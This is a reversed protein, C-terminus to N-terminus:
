KDAWDAINGNVHYDWDGAENPSFRVVFRRGGDWYAPVSLTRRRPSRFEVKVDVTMYPNPHAAADKDSLEFVLECPSYTPTNSCPSPTVAPTQGRLALPALAFLIIALRTGM